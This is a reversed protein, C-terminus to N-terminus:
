KKHEGRQQIKQQEVKWGCALTTHLEEGKKTNAVFIFSSLIKPQKQHKGSSM